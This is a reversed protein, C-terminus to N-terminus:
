KLGEVDVKVRKWYGAAFMQVPFENRDIFILDGVESTMATYARITTFTDAYDVIFDVDQDRDNSM